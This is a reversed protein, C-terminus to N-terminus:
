YSQTSCIVWRKPLGWGCHRWMGGVCQRKSPCCFLLYNVRTLVTAKRQQQWRELFLVDADHWNCWWKRHVL